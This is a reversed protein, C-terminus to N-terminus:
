RGAVANWSVHDRESVLRIASSAIRLATPLSRDRLVDPDGSVLPRVTQRVVDYNSIWSRAMRSRCRLLSGLDNVYRMAENPSCTFTLM